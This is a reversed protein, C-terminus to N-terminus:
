EPNDPCLLWVNCFDDEALFRRFFSTRSTEGAASVADLVDRSADVAPSVNCFLWGDPGVAPAWELVM